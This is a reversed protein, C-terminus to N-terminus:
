SKSWLKIFKDAVKTCSHNAEIYNRGLVAMESFENKRDLINHLARSLSEPSPDADFAPSWKMFDFYSKGKDTAGTLVIKGAALMELANMGPSQSYVQDIVIDVNNTTKIYDEYNMGEITIFEFDNRHKKLIEIAEFVIESGKFGRRTPTHAIKIKQSSKAPSFAIRSTDVPLPIRFFSEDPFLSSVHDYEIMSCGATDFYQRAREQSKKYIKNFHNECDQGLIEGSSLCTSCPSYSFNHTSRRILGLEDCGVAYYSLIRTKRRIIPLDYYKTHKGNVATITNLFNIADYNELALSKAIPVINRAIGGIIGNLDPSFSGDNERGQPGKYQALHKVSHGLDILGKKLNRHVGSAEGILLIKM